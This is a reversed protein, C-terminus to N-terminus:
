GGPKFILENHYRIHDDHVSHGDLTRLKSLDIERVGYDLEAHHNPCLCLINGAVDPGDHPSGLPRIHHAEAYRNGNPLAITSGCIQCEYGHQAKVRRAMATDRLIRYVKVEERGPIDDFDFPPPTNPPNEVVQPQPLYRSWDHAKSRRIEEAWWDFDDRTKDFLEFYGDGPRHKERSIILGTIAPLAEDATLKALSNLGQHQLSQGYTMGRPPLNLELEIHVDQYSIYTEPKGPIADPLISVLLELLRQGAPDM